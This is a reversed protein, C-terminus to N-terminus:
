RGRIELLEDITRSWQAATTTNGAARERDRIGVAVKLRGKINQRDTESDNYRPGDAYGSITM